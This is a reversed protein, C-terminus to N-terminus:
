WLIPVDYARLREDASLIAMGEVQAQAVLLRDFPDRHHLPLDALRRAHRDTVPLGRLGQRYMAEYFDASMDLKGLRRKVAVEIVSVASLLREARDDEIVRRAARSLRRDGELFWLAAHTDVILM